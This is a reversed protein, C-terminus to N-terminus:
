ISDNPWCWISGVLSKIQARWYTYKVKKRDVDLYNSGTFRQARNSFGMASRPVKSNQLLHRSDQYRQNPVSIINMSKKNNKWRGNWGSSYEVFTVYVVEDIHKTRYLLCKFCQIDFTHFIIWSFFSIEFCMCFFACHYKPEWDFIDLNWVYKVFDLMEDHAETIACM